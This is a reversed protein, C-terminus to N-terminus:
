IKAWILGGLHHGDPLGACTDYCIDYAFAILVNTRTCPNSNM